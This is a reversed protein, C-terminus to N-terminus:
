ARIRNRPNATEGRLRPHLPVPPTKKADHSSGGSSLRMGSPYIIEAEARRPLDGNLRLNNHRSRRKGRMRTPSPGIYQYRASTAGALEGCQRPHASKMPPSREKSQRNGASTPITRREAVVCDAADLKGVSTPITRDNGEFDEERLLNGWAPPSSGRPTRVGDSEFGTEERRHPHDTALSRRTGSVIRKGMDTPIIRCHRIAVPIDLRKGWALPSPGCCPSM